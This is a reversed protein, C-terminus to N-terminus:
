NRQKFGVLELPKLFCCILGMMSFASAPSERHTPLQGAQEVAYTGPCGLSCCSFGLDHIPPPTVVVKVTFWLASHCFMGTTKAVQLGLCSDLSDLALRFFM